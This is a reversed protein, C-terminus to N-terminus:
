EQRKIGETSEEKRERRGGETKKRGYEGKREKGGEKREEDVPIM